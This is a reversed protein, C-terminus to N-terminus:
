ILHEFNIIPVNKNVECRKDHEGRRYHAHKSRFTSNIDTINATAKKSQHTKM